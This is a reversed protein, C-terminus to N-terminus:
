PQILWSYRPLNNRIFEPYTEDVEVKRLELHRGFPDQRKEVIEKSAMRREETNFWIEPQAALKEVFSIEDTMWSFHWGGNEIYECSTYDSHVKHVGKKGGELYRFRYLRTGKWGKEYLLNLKYWYANQECIYFKDPNVWSTNELIRPNPIEDLDSIMIIDDLEISSYNKLIGFIMCDREYAERHYSIPDLIFPQKSNPNWDSYNLGYPRFNMLKSFDTPVSEIKNYLIKDQYKSFRARNEQFNLKKPIGSHTLSSETIVFFDVYDWLIEFRMELLEYENLFRICDFIKAKKAHETVGLNAYIRESSQKRVREKLALFRRLFARKLKFLLLLM